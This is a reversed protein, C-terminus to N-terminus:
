GTSEEKSFGLAEDLFSEVRKLDDTREPKDSFEKFAEDPGFLILPKNLWLAINVENITGQTGPLAVVAHSTMINIQNRSLHKPDEGGFVGLPSQITLEVHANPYGEKVQYGAETEDSPVVGLCLGKRTESECFAKSVSTMTGRGGGTLLHVPQSSLLRGLPEAWESWPMKGSGMVGVIPLFKNM